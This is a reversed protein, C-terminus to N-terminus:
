PHPEPPHAAFFDEALIVAVYDDYPRPPSRFGPPVLRALGGPPNDGFFRRRARQSTFAEDVMRLTAAAPLAAKLARALAAGGTANGLLVLEVRHATVLPLVRAIVRERETVERHLVVPPSDAGDGRRVVALGCKASGPDIALVLSAAPHPRVAEDGPPPSTM